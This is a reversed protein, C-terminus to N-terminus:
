KLRPRDRKVPETVTFGTSRHLAATLVSHDILLHLLQERSVRVAKAKGDALDHLDTFTDHSTLLDVKVTM